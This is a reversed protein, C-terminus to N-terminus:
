NFAIKFIELAVQFQNINIKFGYKKAKLEPNMWNASLFIYGFSQALNYHFNKYGVIVLDGPIFSRNFDKVTKKAEARTLTYITSGFIQKLKNRKNYDNSMFIFIYTKKYKEIIEYLEKYEDEKIKLIIDAPVLIAKIKGM